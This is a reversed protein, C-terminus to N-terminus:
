PRKKGLIPPECGGGLVGISHQYLFLRYPPIPILFEGVSKRITPRNNGVEEGELGLSSTQLRWGFIRDSNPRDWSKLNPRYLVTVPDMWVFARLFKPSFAAHAYRPVAWMKRTGFVLIIGPSPFAVFTLNQVCRWLISRFLLGYFNQFFTATPMTMPSGFNKLAGMYLACRATM